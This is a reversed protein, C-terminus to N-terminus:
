EQLESLYATRAALIAKGDQKDGDFDLRVKAAHARTSM